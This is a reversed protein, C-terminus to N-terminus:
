VHARGIKQVDNYKNGKNDVGTRLLSKDTFPVIFRVPFDIDSNALACRCYFLNLLLCWNVLYDCSIKRHISILMGGAEFLFPKMARIRQFLPISSYSFVFQRYTRDNQLLLMNFLGDDGDIKIQLKTPNHTDYYFYEPPLFTKAFEIENPEENFFSILLDKVEKQYSTDQLLRNAKEFNDWSYHITKCQEKIKDKPTLDKTELESMKRTEIDKELKLYERSKLYQGDPNSYCKELGKIRLKMTELFEDDNQDIIQKIGLERELEEYPKHNQNLLDEVYNPYLNNPSTSTSKHTKSELGTLYLRQYKQKLAELEKNDEETNTHFPYITIIDGINSDLETGVIQLKQIIFDRCLRYYDLNFDLDEEPTKKFYSELNFINKESLDQELTDIFHKIGNSPKLLLGQNFM